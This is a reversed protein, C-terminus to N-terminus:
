SDPCTVKPNFTAFLGKPNKKYLYAHLDYHVPMDDTHGPMPGEMNVGFISPWVANHTNPDQDEDVVLWEVGVLRRQGDKGDEYLLAAPRAPDTSNINQPNIYHYGMGGEGEEFVCVEDPVFGDEIAFPEYQYKGTAAYTKAIDKWASPAPNVPTPDAHAPAATLSFATTLALTCAAKAARKAQTPSLPSM